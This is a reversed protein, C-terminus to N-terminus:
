VHKRLRWLLAALLLIFLPWLLGIIFCGRLSVRRTIHGANYLGSDVLATAVGTFVMGFSYCRLMLILHLYTITM